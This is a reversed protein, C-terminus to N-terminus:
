RRVCRVSLGNSKYNYSSPCVGSSNFHIYYGKEGDYQTSAWCNGNVGQSYLVGSSYHRYGVAPFELKLKGSTFIKYGYDSANWGGGNTQTTANKLAVFEDMTPLRYDEPCPDNAELWSTNKTPPNTGNWGSVSSGTSEWSKKGVDWQYFRGHSKTKIPDDTCESPLKTAFSTGEWRSKGLNYRMWSVGGITVLSYPNFDCNQTVTVQITTGKYTLTLVVTRSKGYDNEATTKVTLKNGSVSALMWANSQPSVTLGGSISGDNTTAVTITSTQNPQGNFTISSPTITLKVPTQSVTATARNVGDRGKLTIIANSEEENFTLTSKFAVKFTGATSLSSVAHDTTNTSTVYGSELIDWVSATFTGNVSALGGIVSYSSQNGVLISTKKAQRVTFSGAVNGDVKIDFESDVESTTTNAPVALTFTYTDGNGALPSKVTVKSGSTKSELEIRDLSATASLKVSFTYDYAVSFAKLVNAEFIAQGGSGYTVGQVTATFNALQTVTFSQSFTNQSELVVQGTREKGTNASAIVSLSSGSPNTEPGGAVPSTGLWSQTVKSVKWSTSGSGASTNITMSVSGGDKVINKLKLSDEKSVSFTVPSQKTTFEVKNGGNLNMAITASQAADNYKMTEAYGIIVKKNEADQTVKINPNSSFFDRFDWESVVYTVNKLEQRDKVGGWIEASTDTLKPQVPTKVTFSGVVVGDVEVDIIYDVEKDKDSAPVTLTFNYTKDDKGKTVDSATIGSDAATGKNCNVVISAGDPIATQTIFTFSYTKKLSYAKLTNDSSSWCESASISGVSYSPSQSVEFARSITNMSKVRIYATRGTSGPNTELHLKLKTGSGGTMSPSTKKIWTAPSGDVETIDGWMVWVQDTETTVTADVDCELYGVNSLREPTFTIKAPRQKFTVKAHVEGNPDTFEVPVELGDTPMQSADVTEIFTATITKAQRDIDIMIGDTNNESEGTPIIVIDNMEDEDADYKVARTKTISGVGGIVNVCGDELTTGSVATITIGRSQVINFFGVNTQGVKVVIKTTREAGTTNKSVVIVNDRIELWDASEINVLEGVGGNATIVFSFETGGSYARLDGNDNFMGGVVQIKVDGNLNYSGVNGWNDPSGVKLNGSELYGVMATAQKGVDLREVFSMSAVTKATNGSGASADKVVAEVEMEVGSVRSQPVYFSYVVLNGEDDKVAEATMDYTIGSVEEGSKFLYGRSPLGSVTSKALDIRTASTNTMKISSNVRNLMMPVRTDPSTGSLDVTVKGSFPFRKYTTQHPISLSELKGVTLGEAEPLDILDTCNVVAYVTYTERYPLSIKSSGGVYDTMERLVCVGKSDFAYFVVDDIQDDSPVSSRTVVGNDTQDSIDYFEDFEFDFALDQTSVLSDNRQACSVCFALLLAIVRRM